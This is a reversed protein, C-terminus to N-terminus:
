EDSFELGDVKDSPLKLGIYGVFNHNRWFPQVNRFGVSRLQRLLLDENTLKSLHRLEREKDLIQKETFNQLKYDYYIFEMMNQLKGRHSLVKESFVFSGGEILNDYIKKMLSLRGREPLFQFTFLSTVMSVPGFDWDMSTVDGVVYNLNDSRYREWHTSFDQNIEIGIYNTNSLHTNVEKIKKLLSGQSCGIDIVTTDNEVFYESISVVDNRLDSYGRISKNIHEDFKSSFNSFSFKINEDENPNYDENIVEQPPVVFSKERTDISNHYRM